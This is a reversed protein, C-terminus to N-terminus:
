IYGRRLMVALRTIKLEETPMVIMQAYKTYRKDLVKRNLAVEIASRLLPPCTHESDGGHLELEIAAQVLQSTHIASHWTIRSLPYAEGLERCAGGLFFEYEEM